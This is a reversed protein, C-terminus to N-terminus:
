LSVPAPKETDLELERVAKVVTDAALAPAAVASLALIIAAAQAKLGM